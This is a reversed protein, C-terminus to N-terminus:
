KLTTRFSNRLILIFIKCRVLDPSCTVSEESKEGDSEEDLVGFNAVDEPGHLKNELVLRRYAGLIRVQEQEDDEDDYREAHDFFPEGIVFSRHSVILGVLLHM